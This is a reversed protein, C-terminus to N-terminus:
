RQLFDSVLDRVADPRELVVNHGADPIAVHRGDPAWAAMESALRDYTGDSRGSVTLLPMPLGGIRDGVYPQAGQGLGRLAVALGEATNEERVARDRMRTAQDLHATGAIPGDLWEDLFGALGISEIRDALAADRRRRSARSAQDRIGPSASMLILRDVLHPYELATLLAMRGGQSYGLLAVPSESRKLCDGLAAVTTPIDVPALTTGGHGPLDPAEIHLTSGALPAFQAGTLTFGHLAVVPKGAGFVRVSLDGDHLDPRNKSRFKM